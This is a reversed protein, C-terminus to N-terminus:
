CPFQVILVEKYLGMLSYQELTYKLHIDTCYKFTANSWIVFDCRAYVFWWRNNSSMNSSNDIFLSCHVVSNTWSSTQINYDHNRFRLSVHGSKNTNEHANTSHAETWYQFIVNETAIEIINHRQKQFINQQNWLKFEVINCHVNNIIFLNSVFSIGM